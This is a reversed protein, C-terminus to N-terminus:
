QAWPPPFETGDSLKVTLGLRTTVWIISDQDGTAEITLMSGAPTVVVDGPLADVTEEDITFRPTGATVLFLEERSVRHPLGPEGVPIRTSWACLDAAGTSSNAYATFTTGQVDHATGEHSRIVPM